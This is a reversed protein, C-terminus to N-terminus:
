VWCAETTLEKRCTEPTGTVSATVLQVLLLGPTIVTSPLPTIVATLGPLALILAVTAPTVAVLAEMMTPLGVIPM